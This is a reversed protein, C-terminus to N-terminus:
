SDPYPLTTIPDFKGTLSDTFGLRKGGGINYASPTDSIWGTDIVVANDYKVIFRAVNGPKVTINVGGLRLTIGYRKIDPYVPYSYPGIVPCFPPPCIINSPSPPPTLPPKPSSPPSAPIPSSPPSVPPGGGSLCTSNRVVKKIQDAPQKSFGNKFSIDDRGYSIITADQRNDVTCNGELTFFSDLATRNNNWFCAHTHPSGLTHGIEHAMLMLQSFDGPNPIGNRPFTGFLNVNKSKTCLNNLNLGIAVGNVQYGNGVPWCPRGLCNSGVILSAINGTSKNQSSGFYNSFNEISEDVADTNYVGNDWIRFPNGTDYIVIDNLKLVFVEGFNQADREFVNQVNNFLTTLYTTVRDINRGFDVWLSNSAHMDVKVEVVNLIKFEDENLINSIPEIDADINDTNSGCIGNGGNDISQNFYYLDNDIQNTTYYEINNNTYLISIYTENFTVTTNSGAYEFNSGVYTLIKSKEVVGGSLLIVKGSISSIITRNLSITQFSSDIPIKINLEEFDQLYLFDIVDQKIKFVKAGIPVGNPLEGDYVDFLDFTIPNYAGAQWFTKGDSSITKVDNVGEIVKLQINDTDSFNVDTEGMWPGINLASAIRDIRSAVGYGGAKSDGGWVIGIIKIEGNIEALLASGSDGKCVTYDCVTGDSSIGYFFINDSLITPVFGGQNPYNILINGFLGAIRLQMERNEGKSGTSRGTSYIKASSYEHSLLRDIEYTTAFKFPGSLSNLDYQNFSTVFNIIDPNDIAIAASDTYNLEPYPRIPDYKKVVGISDRLGSDAYGPQVVGNKYINTANGNPNRYKTYFASDGVLVHNNSIGVLSYSDLDIALIGLTGTGTSYTQVSNSISVGGQLPLIYARNPPNLNDCNFNESLCSLLEFNAEQVDTSYTQGDFTIEKPILEDPTIKSIPKKEKVFFIVSLNSTLINSKLKYGYLVGIVNESSENLHVKTLNKLFEPDFGNHLSM